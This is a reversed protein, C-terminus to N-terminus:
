RSPSSPRDPQANPNSYQIHYASRQAQRAPQGQDVHTNRPPETACALGRDLQQKWLDAAAEHHQGGTPRPDQPDIGNAAQWVAIEGILATSPRSGPPAWATPTDGQCAHDHVQDALDAVLHFRKAMYDGWVPHAHVAEPIGPLWPLPGLHHPTLATLRWDLVAAM